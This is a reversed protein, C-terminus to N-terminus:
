PLGEKQRQSESEPPVHAALEAEALLAAEGTQEEARVMKRLEGMSWGERLLLPVGVICCGAFGLLWLMISAVAAPERDIGLILTFAVFAAAQAGGGVAPFQVASGVLGFALVLIAGGLGLTALSGPFAHIAWIYAAAVLLWHAATYLTVVILDTWTRIGRLGDSFGELLATLHKRWGKRWAEHQLRRSLWEGGHHRFYVLFAVAVAFGALLILGASRTITLLVESSQSSAGRHEFSLLALVAIVTTAGMDFVRELVYVGFMGPISLSGKRGILVPRVPDGVRGLLFVCAFGMLTAAFVPAFKLKGLWDSFRIWRLSRVAYCAYFTLLSLLLLGLNAHGLSHGVISWRFEPLAVAGRFKYLLLAIGVVAVALVILKRAKHSMRQSGYCCAEVLTL